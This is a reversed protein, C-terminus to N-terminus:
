TRSKRVLMEAAVVAGRQVTLVRYSISGNVTAAGDVLMEECEATGVFKGKVQMRSCTVTGTVLGNPGVILADATITGNYEGDVHLLSQSVMDGTFSVGESIVSPKADVKLRVVREVASALVDDPSSAQAPAQTSEAFASLFDGDEDEDKRQRSFVKPLM